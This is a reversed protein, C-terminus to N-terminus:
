RALELLRVGRGLRAVGVDALGVGLHQGAHELVSADREDHEGPGVGGDGLRGRRGEARGAGDTADVVETDSVQTVVSSAVAAARSM